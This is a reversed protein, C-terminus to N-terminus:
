SAKRESYSCLLFAASLACLLACSAFAVQPSFRHWLAGVFIPSLLSALGYATSFTGLTQGRAESPALDAIVARRSAIWFSEFLGLLIAPLVMWYADPVIMLCLLASFIMLDAILLAKKRGLRDVVMGAPYSSLFHVLSFLAFALTGLPVSGHPLRYLYFLVMGMPLAGVALIMNSLTVLALPRSRLFSRLGSVVSPPRSRGGSSAPLSEQLLFCIILISALTPLAACWFLKRYAAESYGVGLRLSGYSFFSLLLIGTLPGIIAGATDV